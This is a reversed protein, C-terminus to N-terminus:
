KNGLVFLIQYIKAFNAPPFQFSHSIKRVDSDLFPLLYLYGYKATIDSPILVVFFYIM